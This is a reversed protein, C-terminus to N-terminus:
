RTFDSLRVDALGLRQASLLTRCDVKEPGDGEVMTGDEEFRQEGKSGRGREGSGRAIKSSSALPISGMADACVLHNDSRASDVRVARVRCGRGARIQKPARDRWGEGKIRDLASRSGM